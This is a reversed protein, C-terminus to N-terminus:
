RQSSSKLSLDALWALLPDFDEPELRGAAPALKLNMMGVTAAPMRM